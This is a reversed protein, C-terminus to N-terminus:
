AVLSISCLIGDQLAKCYYVLYQRELYPALRFCQNFPANIQISNKHLLLTPIRDITRLKRCLFIPLTAANLITCECSAVLLNFQILIFEFFKHHDIVKISFLGCISPANLSIRTLCYDYTSTM